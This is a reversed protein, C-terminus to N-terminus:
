APTEQPTRARDASAGQHTRVIRYRVQGTLVAVALATRSDTGTAQYMRSLHSRVTEPRIRLRRAITDNTAGDKCLQDLVRAQHATIYATRRKTTTM